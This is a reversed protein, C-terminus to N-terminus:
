AYLHSMNVPRGKLKLYTFLQARHHYTHTVIGLLWAKATMRAGYFSTTEQNEFQEPEMAGFHATAEAVGRDWIALLGEVTDATLEREMAQIAAHSTEQSIATDVAPIQVMHNAVEWATRVAEHPRWDEAHPPMEPLLKVLSRRLTQLEDFLDQQNM